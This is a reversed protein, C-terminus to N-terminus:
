ATRARLLRPVAILTGGYLAFALFLTLPRGRPLDEALLKLAGMGLLPYVLWSLERLPGRRSTWALGAAAAALVGTRLAALGASDAAPGPAGVLGALMVLAAGCFCWVLAAADLAAPLRRRTDATAHGRARALVAYSVAGALLAAGGSVTLPPWATGPEGLWGRAAHTFLGATVGATLFFLVSHVKLTMREFVAGLLAATVAFACFALVLTTGGFVAGTGALAMTCGFTSFAYFNRGSELRRELFAFATAYAAGGLALGLVGLPLLSGGRAAVVSAAGGYGLLLALTGQVIEFTGVPQKQACVRVSAGVLYVFSLGLGLLVLTSSSLAPYGEPPGGDHRGVVVLVLVALDLALAIVSRLGLWQDRAALAEVGVAMLLLVVTFPVLEHTRVLLGLAATAALLVSATSIAGVERRWGVLLGLAFFGLLLTASSAPTLLGFRATAEWILPHVILLGTVGHFAASVKQGAAGARDALVLWAAAYLLGAITGWLEPLLRGDTLARLLYAGGLVVLSRGLLPLAGAPSGGVDREAAAIPEAKEEPGDALMSQPSGKSAAELRDLRQRVRALERGMEELGLRLEALDADVLQRTAVM